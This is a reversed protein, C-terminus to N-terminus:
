RFLTCSLADFCKPIKRLAFSNKQSIQPNSTIFSFKGEHTIAEYSAPQLGRQMLHEDLLNKFNSSCPDALDEEIAAVINSNENKISDFKTKYVIDKLKEKEMELAVLCAKAASHQAAKKNSAVETSRYVKGCFTVEGYYEYSYNSVMVVETKYIPPEYCNKQAVENLLCKYTKGTVEEVISTVIPKEKPEAKVIKIEKEPETATTESSRLREHDEIDDQEFDFYMPAIQPEFTKILIDDDDDDCETIDNNVDDDGNGLEEEDWLAGQGPEDVVLTDPIKDSDLKKECLGLAECAIRAAEQEAGKKSKQKNEAIFTHGDLMVYSSFLPSLYETHENLFYKPQSRIHNKQCYENLIAKYSLSKKRAEDVFSRFLDSIIRLQM